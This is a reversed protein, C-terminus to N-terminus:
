DKLRNRVAPQERSSTATKIEALQLGFADLPGFGAAAVRVSVGGGDAGTGADGDSSEVAFGERGEPGM